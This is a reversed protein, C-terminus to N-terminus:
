ARGFSSLGPCEAGAERHNGIRGDRSSRSCPELAGFHDSSHLGNAYTTTLGGKKFKIKKSNSMIHDVRHTIGATSPDNLNPDQLCCGFPPPTLARESWGNALLARYALADGPDVQDGHVPSDSNFDGLLITPLKSSTPGGPAIM